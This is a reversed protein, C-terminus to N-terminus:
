IGREGGFYFGPDHDRYKIKLRLQGLLQKLIDYVRNFSARNMWENVSHCENGIPTFMVCDLSPKKPLFVCIELGGPCINEQIEHGYFDKMLRATIEKLRSDKM